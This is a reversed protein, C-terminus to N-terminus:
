QENSVVVAEKAGPGMRRPLYVRFGAGQGPGASHAEVRGGHMEALSKVLNLGIGLGGQARSVAQDAQTFLEFVRSLLENSIGIGNDRVQILVEAGAAAAELWIRGGENTYKAANNLLNGVIQVLRTRDGEIWLPEDPMEVSIEHRRTRILTASGEVAQEVVEAVTLIERELSIKGRSIRSVDSLDDILRTLHATQRAIVECAWELKPESIGLKGLVQVANRIPALPNRLEHALMALFEDKRRDAERLERELRKWDTIDEILGLLHTVHGKGDWLAYGRDRVPIYTGDARRVRYEFDRFGIIPVAASEALFKERDEPHILKIWHGIPGSLEEATYALTDEISGGFLVQQGAFDVDYLLMGSAEVVKEYRDRWERIEEESRKRDTIDINIGIARVPREAADYFVQGRDEIWRISGDAGVIRYELQLSTERRDLASFTTEMIRKRDEPHIMNQWCDRLSEGCGSELGFLRLAEDSWRVENTPINWDWVGANAASQALRLREESRQLALELLREKEEANRLRDRMAMGSAGLSLVSGGGPFAKSPAPSDGTVSRWGGLLVGPGTLGFVVLGSVLITGLTSGVSLGPEVRKHLRRHIEQQIEEGRQGIAAMTDKGGSASEALRAAEFGQRRVTELGRDLQDLRATILSELSKLRPRMWADHGAMDELRPSLRPLQRNARHYPALYDPDGTILYGRQGTEAERIASLLAGLEMLVVNAHLVTRRIEAQRQHDLFLVWLSLVLTSFVAIGIRTGASRFWHM